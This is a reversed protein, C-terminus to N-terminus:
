RRDELRQSGGCLGGWLRGREDKVLYFRFRDGVGLSLGCNSAASTYVWHETGARIGKRRRLVRVKARIAEPMATHPLDVEVATDEDARVVALATTEVGTRGFQVTHEAPPVGCLAFAGEDDTWTEAIGDIEVTTAAVPRGCRSEQVHGVM